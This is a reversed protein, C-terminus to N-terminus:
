FYKCRSKVCADCFNGKLQIIIDQLFSIWSIIETWPDNGLAIKLNKTGIETVSRYWVWPFSFNYGTRACNCRLRRSFFIWLVPLRGRSLWGIKSISKIKSIARCGVQGTNRQELYDVMEDFKIWDKREFNYVKYPCHYCNCYVSIIM